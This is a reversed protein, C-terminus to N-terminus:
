SGLRSAVTLLTGPIALVATVAVSILSVKLNARSDARRAATQRRSEERIRTMPVLNATRRAIDRSIIISLYATFAIGVWGIVHVAPALSLTAESVIWLIMVLILAVYPVASLVRDWPLNPTGNEALATAVEMTLSEPVNPGAEPSNPAIYVNLPTKPSFYLVGYDAEDRKFKVMITRRDPASLKHLDERSVEREGGMENIVTFATGTGGARLKALDGIDALTEIDYTAPRLQVGGLTDVVMKPPYLWPIEM